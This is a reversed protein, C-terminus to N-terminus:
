FRAKKDTADFVRVTHSAYSEEPFERQFSLKFAAQEHAPISYLYQMAQGADILNGQANHFEACFHVQKWCVDSDNKVHGVVAVTPGSEGQGFQIKSDSVSIQATYWSFDRGRDLMRDMLMAVLGVFILMPILALLGAIRPDFVILSLQNQWHHCYPCKKARAPIEMCCLKCRKYEATTTM